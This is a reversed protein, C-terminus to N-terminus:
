AEPGRLDSVEFSGEARVGAPMVERSLANEALNRAGGNSAHHTVSNLSEIGDINMKVVEVQGARSGAELFFDRCPM